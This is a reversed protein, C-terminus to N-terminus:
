NIRIKNDEFWTIPFWKPFVRKYLPMGVVENQQIPKSFLCKMYGHMGLPEKIVGRIGSRTRLGVSKFWKVDEPNNFMNRVVGKSKRVKFLSGILVIRKVIVRYPDADIIDGWALPWDNIVLDNPKFNKYTISNRTDPNIDKLSFLLIPCPPFIITSYCSIVYHDGHLFIKCQKLIQSREIMTASSIRPCNSIIPCIYFRRFGAQLVLPTKNKILDINEATRKVRFNMVGVKREFPLISSLIIVRSSINEDTLAKQAESSVPSLKFECYKGRLNEQNCSDLYIKRSIEGTKKFSDIEFIRSYENPLNEFPDWKSTRLSELGRYKKFRTCCITDSEVRKEDTLIECEDESGDTLAENTINTDSELDVNYENHEMDRVILNNPSDIEMSKGYLISNECSSDIAPSKEIGAVGIIEKNLIESNKNNLKIHFDRSSLVTISNFSPNDIPNVEDIVFDGINTIHVPFNISLGVGRVYGKIILQRKIENSHNCVGISSSESLLYGRGDRLCLKSYGMIPISSLLNRIDNEKQLSFFKMNKEFEMEFSKRFVKECDLIKSGFYYTENCSFVGITNTQGQLKISKLLKYGVEDFARFEENYGFLAMIFDSCKILDLTELIENYKAICISLKYKGIDFTFVGNPNSQFHFEIDFNNGPYNHCIYNSLLKLVSISNCYSNFPVITCLVPIGLQSAKEEKRLNNSIIKNKRLQNKQNERNKGSLPKSIFRENCKKLKQNSKKRISSKGKFPKNSQKLKPKHCHM